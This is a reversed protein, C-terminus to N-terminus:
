GPFGVKEFSADIVDRLSRPRDEGNAAAVPATRGRVNLRAAQAARQDTHAKVAQAIRAQMIEAQVQPNLMCAQEYAQGMPLTPNISYVQKIESSVRDFYPHVLNGQKDREEAFQEIGWSIVRRGENFQRQRDAEILANLRADNQAVANATDAIKNAVFRLAPDDPVGEPLAPQQGRNQVFVAPDLGTRRLVEGVMAVRDNYNPSIAARQFQFLEGIAQLPTYGNQAISERILPDAFIPELSRMFDAAQANAQVRRQYDSEMESHRRLLFAQGEPTQKAFAERDMASWNEPATAAVGQRPQTVPEPQPAEIDDDPSPPERRVAAEGPEADAPRTAFRGLADRPQPEADVEQPAEDDSANEVVEDWSKEIVDRLSPRPAEANPNHPEDPM